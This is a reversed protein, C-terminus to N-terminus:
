EGLGDPRYGAEPRRPPGNPDSRRLSDRLLIGSTRQHVPHHIGLNASGLSSKWKGSWSLPGCLTIARDIPTSMWSMSLFHTKRPHAALRSLSSSTTRDIQCIALVNLFVSNKLTPCFPGCDLISRSEARVSRAAGAFLLRSSLNLTALRDGSPLVIDAAFAKSMTAVRLRHFKSALNNMARKAESRQKGANSKSV